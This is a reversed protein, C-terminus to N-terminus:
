FRDLAFIMSDVAINLVLFPLSSAQGLYLHFQNSKCVFSTTSLARASGSV